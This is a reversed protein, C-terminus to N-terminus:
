PAKGRTIIGADDLAAAMEDLETAGRYEPSIDENDVGDAYWTRITEASIWKKEPWVIYYETGSAGRYVSCGTM